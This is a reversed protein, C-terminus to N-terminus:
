CLSLTSCTLRVGSDSSLKRFPPLLVLCLSSSLVLSHVHAHKDEVSVERGGLLLELHELSLKSAPETDCGPNRKVLVVVKTINPSSEGVVHHLVSSFVEILGPLKSGSSVVHIQYVLPSPHDPEESVGDEDSGPLVRGVGTEEPSVHDM